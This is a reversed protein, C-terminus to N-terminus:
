PVEQFHRVRPDEVGSLVSLTKLQGSAKLIRLGANLREILWAGQPHQRSVFYHRGHGFNLKMGPVPKFRLGLQPEDFSMDDRSSFPQLIADARSAELMRLASLWNAAKVFRLGKENLVRIDVDWSEVVVFTLRRVDAPDRIALVDSRSAHTYVGVKFADDDLVPESVHVGHLMRADSRFGAVPSALLRGELLDVLTRANTTPTTYPVYRVQCGCGGLVLANQFVLIEMLHRNLAQAPVRDLNLPDHAKAYAQYATHNNEVLPFTFTREQTHGTLVFLWFLWGPNVGTHWWRM